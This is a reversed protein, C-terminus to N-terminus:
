NNLIKNKQEVFEEQTLVGSDLLEKLKLLEDAISTNSQTNPQIDSPKKFKDGFKSKFYEQVKKLKKNTCSFLIIYEKDSEDTFAITIINDVDNLKIQKSGVGTMGGVVAGVPGLLLGGILARGIVSKSKQEIIQDQHEIVCYQFNDFFIGTRYSSFGMTLYFEIGRPRITVYVPVNEKKYNNNEIADDFKDFGGFYRIDGILGQGAEGSFFGYKGFILEMEEKSYLRM